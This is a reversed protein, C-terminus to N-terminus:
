GKKKIKEKLKVWKKFQKASLLTKLSEDLEKEKVTVGDTVPKLEESIEKYAEQLISFDRVEMAKKRASEVKTKVQSFTFSNIRSVEKQEKNFKKFTSVVKKYNDASKKLGIKKTVKEIEYITLGVVREVKFEVDRQRTNAASMRDADTRQRFRQGNPLFQAEVALSVLVFAILIFSKKM